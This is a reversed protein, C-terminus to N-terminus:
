ARLPELSSRKFLLKEGLPVTTLLRVIKDSARGDGYPNELDQISKRFQPSLAQAVAARIASASAAVDLVNAAHDRRLVTWGCRIGKVQQREQRRQDRHEHQPAVRAALM